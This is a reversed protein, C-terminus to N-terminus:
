VLPQRSLDIVSYCNNNTEFSFLSPNQKNFSVSSGNRDSSVCFYEETSNKSLLFDYAEKVNHYMTKCQKINDNKNNKDPHYKRCKVLYANRIKKDDHVDQESLGLVKLAESQMAYTGDDAGSRTNANQRDM